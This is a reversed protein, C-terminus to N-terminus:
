EDRLKANLLKLLAMKILQRKAADPEVVVRIPADFKAIEKALVLRYDPEDDAVGVQKLFKKDANTFTM